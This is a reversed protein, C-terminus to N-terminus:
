YNGLANGQAPIHLGKLALFIGGKKFHARIINGVIIGTCGINKFTKSIVPILFCFYICRIASNSYREM